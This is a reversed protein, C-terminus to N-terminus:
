HRPRNACGEIANHMSIRSNPAANRCTPLWKSRPSALDSVPCASCRMPAASHDPETVTLYPGNVNRM